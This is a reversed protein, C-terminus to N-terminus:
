LQIDDDSSDCDIITTSEVTTVYRAARTFELKVVNSQIRSSREREYISRVYNICRFNFTRSEFVICATGGIAACGFNRTLIRKRPWFGIIM